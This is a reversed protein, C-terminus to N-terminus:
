KKFKITDILSYYIPLEEDTATLSINYSDEGNLILTDHYKTGAANPQKTETLLAKHGDIEKQTSTFKPDNNNLWQQFSQEASVPSLEEPTRCTDRLCMKLNNSKSIEIVYKQDPTWLVISLNDSATGNTLKTFDIPYKFTIDEFLDSKWDTTDAGSIKKAPTAVTATPTNVLTCVSYTSNADSITFKDKILKNVDAITKINNPLLCRMKQGALNNDSNGAYQANAVCGTATKAQLDFKIEVNDDTKTVFDGKECSSLLKNACNIDSDCNTLESQPPSNTNCGVSFLLIGAVTAAQLIKKM